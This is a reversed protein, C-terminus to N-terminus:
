EEQEEDEEDEASDPIELNGHSQAGGMTKSSLCFILTPDYRLHASNDRRLNAELRTVFPRRQFGLVQWRQRQEKEGRKKEFLLVIM